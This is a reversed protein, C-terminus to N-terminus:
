DEDFFLLTSLLKVMNFAVHDFITKKFQHIPANTNRGELYALCSKVIGGRFTEKGLQHSLRVKEPDEADLEKLM